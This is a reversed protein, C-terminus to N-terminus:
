KKRNILWKYICSEKDLINILDEFKIKVDDLSFINSDPLRCFFFYIGDEKLYIQEEMKTEGEKIFDSLNGMEKIFQSWKGEKRMSAQIWNRLITFSATDKRLIDKLHIIKLSQLDFLYHRITNDAYGGWYDSHYDEFSIFENTKLHLTIEKHQTYYEISGDIDIGYFGKGLETNKDPKQPMSNGSLGNFAKEVNSDPHESMEFWEAYITREDKDVKKGRYWNVNKKILKYDQWETKRLGFTFSSNDKKRIWSGKISDGNSFWTGKFTGTLKGASNHEELIVENNRVYGRVALDKGIDQYYYVGIISDRDFILKMEIGVKDGNGKMYGM